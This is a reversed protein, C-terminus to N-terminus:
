PKGGSTTRTQIADDFLKIVRERRGREESMREETLQELAKVSNQLPVFAQAFIDIIVTKADGEERLFAGSIGEVQWIDDIKNMYYTLGSQCTVILLPRQSGDPLIETTEKPAGVVPDETLFAPSSRAVRWSKTPADFVMHYVQGSKTTVTASQEDKALVVEAPKAGVEHDRQITVAPFNVVTLFLDKHTIQQEKPPRASAVKTLDGIVKGVGTLARLRLQEEPDNAFHVKIQADLEFLTSLYHKFLQRADRDLYGWFADKDDASISQVFLRLAGEPANPDPTDDTCAACTATLWLLCAAIALARPLNPRPRLRPSSM